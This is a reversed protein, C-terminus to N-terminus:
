LDLAVHIVAPQEALLEGTTVDRVRIQVQDGIALGYDPELMLSREKVQFEVREEWVRSVREGQKIVDIEVQRPKALLDVGEPVLRIKFIANRIEPGDVLELSVEVLREAISRRVQIYPIVVEQLAIGGHM